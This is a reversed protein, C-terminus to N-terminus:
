NGDNEANQLANVLAQLDQQARRTAEALAAQTEPDLEYDDDGSGGSDSGSSTSSNAPATAAVTVSSDESGSEGAEAALLPQVQRALLDSVREGDETSMESPLREVSLRQTEDPANGSRGSLLVVRQLRSRTEPTEGYVLAYDFGSLLRNLVDDLSGEIDATVANDDVLRDAGILRFEAEAQIAALVESLAEGEASVQWNGDNEQVSIDAFASASLALAAMATVSLGLRQISM